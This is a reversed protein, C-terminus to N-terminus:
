NGGMIRDIADERDDFTKKWWDYVNSFGSSYLDTFVANGVDAGFGGWGGPLLAGTAGGTGGAFFGSMGQLVVRNFDDGNRYSAFAASGGSSVTGIIAGWMPSPIAASLMGLVGGLATAWKDGGSDKYASYGAMLGGVVIKAAYLVTRGDPDLKNIPDNNAYLYRHLTMPEVFKGKM